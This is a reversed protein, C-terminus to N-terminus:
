YYVLFYLVILVQAYLGTLHTCNVSQGFLVGVLIVCYYGRESLSAWHREGMEIQCATPFLGIFLQRVSLRTYLTPNKSNLSGTRKAVQQLSKNSACV